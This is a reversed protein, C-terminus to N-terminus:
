NDNSRSLYLQKAKVKNDACWSVAVVCYRSVGLDTCSLSLIKDKHNLRQIELQSVKNSGFPVAWAIDGVKWGALEEPGEHVVPEVKKSRRRKVPAEKKKRAM